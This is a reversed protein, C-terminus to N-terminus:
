SYLQLRVKRKLYYYVIGGSYGVWLQQKSNHPHWGWLEAMFKNRIQPRPVIVNFCINAYIENTCLNFVNLNCFHLLYKSICINCKFYFCFLYVATPESVIINSLLITLVNWAFVVTKHQGRINSLFSATACM